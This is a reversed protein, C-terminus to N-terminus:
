KICIFKWNLRHVYLFMCAFVCSRLDNAIGDASNKEYCANIHVYGESVLETMAMSKMDNIMEYWCEVCFM